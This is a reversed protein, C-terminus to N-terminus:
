VLSLEGVFCYALIEVHPPESVTITVEGEGEVDETGVSDTVLKETADTDVEIPSSMWRKGSGVDIDLDGEGEQTWKIGTPDGIGENRDGALNHVHDMGHDHLPLDAASVTFSPADTVSTWGGSYGAGIKLFADELAPVHVTKGGGSYIAATAGCEIYGDPLYTAEGALVIQGYFAGAPVWSTGDYTYLVGTASDLWQRGIARNADDGDEAQMTSPSPQSSGVYVRASGRKHVGDLSPSSVNMLEHEREIRDGVAQRTEQIYDDALSANRKGNPKNAFDTTWIVSM